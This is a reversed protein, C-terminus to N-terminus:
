LFDISINKYYKKCKYNIPQFCPLNIPRFTLPYLLPDNKGTLNMTDLFDSILKSDEELELQILGLKKRMKQLYHKQFEGDYEEEIIKHSIELPLEPVLAEALKGLNWKCIEPQKNYAYRGMNDSGNCIHEPDYRSSLVSTLAM